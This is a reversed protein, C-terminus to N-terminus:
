LFTALPAPPLKIGLFINNKSLSYLDELNVAVPESSLDVVTAKFPKNEAISGLQEDIGAILAPTTSFASVLRQPTLKGSKCYHLLVRLSTELGTTGFAASAFDGSKSESDHPAHDTAVIDIDGSFLSEQLYEKDEPSRIPPNMKFSTNTKDIMTNDFFLHHPSVEVTVNLGAQKAEMVLQVTKVCSAHLVHYRAKPYKKLLELDRAVMEWEASDPYPAVAIEQQIKSPSFIGGHGPFECHQQLLAGNQHSFAFLKEMLENSVVGVGDDTFATVNQASFENLNVLEIGKQDITMAVSWLVKVGIQKETEALLSKASALVETCDIKPETNPMALVAGYGGGKAALLATRATEKHTQGPIRLHVQLDVGAPILAKGQGDIWNFQPDIVKNKFEKDEKSTIIKVVKKNKVYINCGLSIKNSNWIDVNSICFETKKQLQEWSLKVM